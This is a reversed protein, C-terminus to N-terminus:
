NPVEEVRTSLDDDVIGVVAGFCTTLYDRLLKVLSSNVHNHETRDADGIHADPRVRVSSDIQSSSFRIREFM